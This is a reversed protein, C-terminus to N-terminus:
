PMAATVAPVITPDTLDTASALVSPKKDFARIAVMAVHYLEERDSGSTAFVGMGTIVASVFKTMVMPDDDPTAKKGRAFSANAFCSRANFRRELTAALQKPECDAVHLLPRM